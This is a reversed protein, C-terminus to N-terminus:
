VAAAPPVHARLVTVRFPKPRLAPTYRGTVQEEATCPQWGTIILAAAGLRSWTLAPVRTTTWRRM